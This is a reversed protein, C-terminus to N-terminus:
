TSKRPQHTVSERSKPDLTLNDAWSDPIPVVRKRLPSLAPSKGNAIDREAAKVEARVKWDKLDRAYGGRRVHALFAKWMSPSQFRKHLKNRHCHRCLEYAAPPEWLYPKAYDESHLELSAEPDGCLMCAGRSKPVAGSALLKGRARGKASREKDSYGNYWAGSM